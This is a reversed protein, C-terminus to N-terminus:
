PLCPHIAFVTRRTTALLNPSKGSIPTRMDVAKDGECSPWSSRCINRATVTITEECTTLSTIRQSLYSCSPASQRAFTTSDGVCYTDVVEESWDNGPSRSIVYIVKSSSSPHVITTASRDHASVTSPDNDALRWPDASAITRGPPLRASARITLRLYTHRATVVLLHIILCYHGAM